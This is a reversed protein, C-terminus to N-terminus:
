TPRRQFAHFIFYMDLSNALTLTGDFNLSITFNTYPELTLDIRLPYMPVGQGGGPNTANITTNNATTAAAAIPNIVPIMILPVFLIDKDVFRVQLYGGNMITERDNAMTTQAATGSIATAHVFGLSIGYFKYLKTPIVGATEMNTDRFSKTKSSTVTGVILTAAQGKPTSFFTIQSAPTTAINARDYLPQSLDEPNEPKQTRYQKAQLPDAARNITRYTNAM